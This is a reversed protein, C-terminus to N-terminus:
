APTGNRLALIQNIADNKAAYQAKEDETLDPKALAKRIGIKMMSLKDSDIATYSAGESNKIAVLEAPYLIPEPEPQGPDSGSNLWDLITKFFDGGPRRVVKDAVIDCRSKSVVMTHELDMDCVITFEYEMGQRQIPALGIKRIVTSGKEDKEQVYDMKSRMTVIVHTKSQLIADVMQRHMPTVNRWAVYSNGKSRAAAQDVMDLAGGEGEWAHSLSDIVIVAYGAKEAANIAQTYVEPSFRDLELVDFDFKDSYLSASGRETDVVAIKGGEAMATAAVLATYTKGAGSPGDIALRLKSRKKTAKTFQMNM